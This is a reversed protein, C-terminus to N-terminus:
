APSRQLVLVVILIAANILLGIAGQGDLDQIKGNWLLIYVISSLVTAGMIAQQWWPQNAVTGIGGAVLGIATVILLIGALKQTVENGLLRSFAWANTPWVMGPKLEFYGLSQGCYLLHVFGHLIVFIGFIIRFMYSEEGM